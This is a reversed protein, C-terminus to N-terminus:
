SWEWSVIYKENLKPKKKIFEIQKTGDKVKNIPLSNVETMEAAGFTKVVRASTVNVGNFNIVMKFKKVPYFIQFSFNEPSKKTFSNAMECSTTRTGITKIPIPSVIHRYAGDVKHSSDSVKHFSDSNCWDCHMQLNKVEGDCYVNEKIVELHRTNPKIKQTKVYGAPSGDANISVEITVDEYILPHEESSRLRYFEAILIFGVALLAVGNALSPKDPFIKHLALLVTGLGALFVVIERSSPFDFEKINPM